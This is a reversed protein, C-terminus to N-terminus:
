RSPTRATPVVPASYRSTWSSRCTFSPPRLASARAGDGPLNPQRQGADARCCEALAHLARHRLVQGSRQRRHRRRHGKEHPRAPGAPLGSYRSECHGPDDGPRSGARARHPQTTRHGCVDGAVAEHQQGPHRGAHPRRLGRRRHVAPKEAAALGDHRRAHPRSRAPTRGDVAMAHPAHQQQRADDECDGCRSQGSAACVTLKSDAGPDCDTAHARHGTPGPWTRPVPDLRGRRHGVWPPRRVLKIELGPQAQGAADAVAGTGPSAM